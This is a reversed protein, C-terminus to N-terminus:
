NPWFLLILDMKTLFVYFLGSKFSLNQFVELSRNYIKPGRIIILVMIFHHIIIYRKLMEHGPQDFIKFQSCGAIRNM